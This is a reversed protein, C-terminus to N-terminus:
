IPESCERGGSATCRHIESKGSRPNFGERVISHKMGRAAMDPQIFRDAPLQRDRHQEIGGRKAAGPTTSGLTGCRVLIATSTPPRMAAAFAGFQDHDFACRGCRSSICTRSRCGVCRLSGGQAAPAPHLRPLSIQPTLLRHRFRAVCVACPRPRPTAGSRVSLVPRLGLPTKIYSRVVGRKGVVDGSVRGMFNRSVPRVDRCRRVGPVPM